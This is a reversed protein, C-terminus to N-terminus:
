AAMHNQVYGQSAMRCQNGTCVRAKQAAWFGLYLYLHMTPM